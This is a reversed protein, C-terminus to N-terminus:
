FRGRSSGPYSDTSRVPCFSDGKGRLLGIAELPVHTFCVRYRLPSEAGSPSLLATIKAFLSSTVLVGRESFLSLKIGDGDALEAVTCLEAVNRAVRAIQGEHESRQVEKGEVLAIRVPLAPRLEVWLDERKEPLHVNYKGGIGGVDFVELPHPIGKALIERRGDIRLIDGCADRTSRSVLIQGGVTRSEIRSTVNVARGVVGYKSRRICGMNGVIVEGTNLGIGQQLEPFGRLRCAENVDDMALQMEVACATAREHADDYEIPAGFLAFIADGLFEDITGGYKLIVDTMAGLYINILELVSEAPLRESIATFGRLDAMLLTIRRKVGSLTAGGPADLITQVVDESLYRGFTKRIFQNAVDLNENAHRLEATRQAVIDELNRSYDELQVNKEWISRKLEYNGLLAGAQGVMVSFSARVEAKIPDFYYKHEHTLGGLIIGLMDSRQDSFPSLIAQALKLDAWKDLLAHGPELMTSSEAGLWGQEFPVSEPFGEFGVQDVVDMRGTDPNLRLFAAGEFEFAELISELLTSTFEEFSEAQLLRKYCAQMVKFRGLERDLQGGTDILQQRIVIFRDVKSQLDRALDRLEEPSLTDITKM